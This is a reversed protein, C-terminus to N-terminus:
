FHRPESIITKLATTVKNFKVKAGFKALVWYVTTKAYSTDKIINSSSNGVCRLEYITIGRTLEINLSVQGFRELIDEFIPELNHM